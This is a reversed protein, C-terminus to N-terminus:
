GIMKKDSQTAIGKHISVDKGANYGAHSGNMMRGKSSRTKSVNMEYWALAAASCDVPVLGWEQLKREVMADMENLKTSVGISYGNMWQRWDTEDREWRSKGDYGADDYRKIYSKAYSDYTAKRQHKVIDIMYETAEIDSPTGILIVFAKPGHMNHLFKCGNFRAIRNILVRDFKQIEKTSQQRSITEFSNDKRVTDAASINHKAMLEAAMNRASEAEPTHSTGEALALLKCIKDVLKMRANKSTTM